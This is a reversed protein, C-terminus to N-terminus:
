IVGGHEPEPLPCSLEASVLEVRCALHYTGPATKGAVGCLVRFM